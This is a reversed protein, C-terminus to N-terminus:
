KGRLVMGKRVEVGKLRGKGFFQETRQSCLTQKFRECQKKVLWIMNWSQNCQRMFRPSIQLYHSLSAHEFVVKLSLTCKIWLLLERITPIEM